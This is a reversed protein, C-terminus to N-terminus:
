KVKDTSSSSHSRPYRGRESQADNV